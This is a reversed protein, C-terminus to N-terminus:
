HAFYDKESFWQADAPSVHYWNMSMASVEMLHVEATKDPPKSKMLLPWM